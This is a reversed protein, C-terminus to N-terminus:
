NQPNNPPQTQQPQQRQMQQFAHPPGGPALGPRTPPTAQPQQAPEEDTDADEDSDSAANATQVTTGAHRSSLVIVRPTGQGQDGVMMVNYGSGLLLQSLVDRAQGPGYVGFIRQDAGFGEVKAGTATAVDELIQALSSNTADIRLGQKDWTVSAPFPKENSPWKPVEPAFTSATATQPTPSQAHAAVPHKHPHAPKRASATPKAPVATASAQAALMQTGCLTVALVALSAFISGRFIGSSVLSNLPTTTRM